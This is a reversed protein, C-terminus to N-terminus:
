GHLSAYIEEVETLLDAVEQMGKQWFDPKSIDIEMNLFLEHPAQSSGASLFEKVKHIFEPNARTQAQMSKSILLGSAYSYVYFFSRIHSWYVWWNESGPSQEVADGMYAAMHKTFLEGIESSSVYGQERYKAHLDQEFRYCAVQRIITSIDDNLKQILIALKETPSATELLKSLVFDEIYTSAVEATSMPTGFNLANQAKRMFEDNIAHGMEHALTLVDNLKDTHNLLVYVPLSKTAYACFAGGSKGIRPYVDLLGDKVFRAYIEAFEADLDTLVSMLLTNSTEWDYKMDLNGYPVNREHYALKEQGLVKAKLRYYRHAIEYNDEVVKLMADVVTSDIDDHFHRAADPRNYKRLKDDVFKNALIANIEATATAVYKAQVAHVEVAAADRVQKNTDSTMSLIQSFSRQQKEGTEDALEAQEQNIFESTLKVWSQHASASKMMMVQEAEEGLQHKASEFLKRLFHQYDKLEPAQLFETQKAPSIKALRLDFFQIDKVADQYIQESKGLGAKIIADDSNQKSRLWFYYFDLPEAFNAVWHEFEDLAQKLVKVDELYDSRPEWKSAFAATVQQFETRVAEIRPDNDASFLWNLNWTKDTTNSM